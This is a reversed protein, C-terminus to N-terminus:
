KALHAALASNFAQEAEVNSIHSADLDARACNPIRSAMADADDVTTVPDHVGAIVLTPAKIQQLKDGFDAHAIAECCAAYGEADTTRLMNLIRQSEQAHTTQFSATFWRSLAGEVVPTMGQQRVLAAREMWAQTNGIRAATNCLVLKDIRDAAHIGLWQAILGGMSIGCFSVREIGLFDLLRLVDTGLQDISLSGPQAQSKGHGRTDYRLVRYDAGFCREQGAWLDASTGLSNSFMLTKANDAGSLAYALVNDDLQVSDM